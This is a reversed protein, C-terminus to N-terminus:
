CDCHVCVPPIPNSYLPLDILLSRLGEAETRAKELVVLEAETTSRVICTQKSSKWSIAGETLTFV